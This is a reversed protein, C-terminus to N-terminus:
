GEEKTGEHLIMRPSPKVGGYGGTKKESDDSRLRKVIELLALYDKMTERLNKQVQEITACTVPIFGGNKTEKLTIRDEAEHYPHDDVFTRWTKLQSEAWDLDVNTFKNTAM